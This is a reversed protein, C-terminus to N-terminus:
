KKLTPDNILTWEIVEFKGFGQSRCAGLGDDECAAWAKKLDEETFVGRAPWKLYITMEPQDLKDHRGLASRTGSMDKIHKVKDLFTLPEKVSEGPNFHDKELAEVVIKGEEGAKIYKVVGDVTREFPIRCPDVHVAHQFCQKGGSSPDKDPILPEGEIALEALAALAELDAVPEPEGKKKKGPKKATGPKKTNPRRQTLGFTVFIERMMAKVNGHWISLNGARDREFTCWNMEKVADKEEDTLTGEALRKQFDAKDEDSMHRAAMYYDLPKGAKPIGALVLDRFKIRLRVKYFLENNYQELVSAM